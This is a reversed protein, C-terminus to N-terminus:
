KIKELLKKIIEYAKINHYKIGPRQITYIDDKFEDDQIKEEM